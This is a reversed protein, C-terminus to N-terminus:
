QSRVMVREEKTIIISVSCMEIMTIHHHFPFFLCLWTKTIKPLFRQPFVLPFATSKQACISAGAM